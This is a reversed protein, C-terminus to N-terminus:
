INQRVLTHLPNGRIKCGLIMTQRASIDEAPTQREVAERRVKGPTGEPVM